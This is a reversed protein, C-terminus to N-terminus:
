VRKLRYYSKRMCLPPVFSSSVHIPLSFRGRRSGRMKSSSGARECWATRRTLSLSENSLRSIKPSLRSASFASSPSNAPRTLHMQM